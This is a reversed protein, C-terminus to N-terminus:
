RLAHHREALRALVELGAKLKAPTSAFSIRFNTNRKSFVHGPVILLHRHPTRDLIHNRKHRLYTGVGGGVESWSQTLDCILREAALPSTIDPEDRSM